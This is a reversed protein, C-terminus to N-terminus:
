AVKQRPLKITFTTGCGPKSDVTLEGDHKQVIIDYSINLGLGTGEGVPKTTFFPDFIMKLHEPKIGPGDDRIRCWVHDAAAGTTIEISGFEQRGQAKIAQAANVIINLIVQNIQGVHCYVEPLQPDFHTAIKANYKYENRAVVLTTEVAKNLCYLTKDERQDVRSFERLKTVISTIREFGDESETFLEDLDELIFDLQLAEELASLAGLEAVPVGDIGVLRDYFRRYEEILHKFKLIYDKMSKFNSSVFGVPTNLEHAIGAALNGISALKEQQVMQAQSQQLKKITEQLKQNTQLLAASRESVLAELDEKQQRLSEEDRIKERIKEARYAAMKLTDAIIGFDLMPKEVFNWAGIRMARVVDAIKDTGSIAVLPLAPWREHFREILEFGSIEPLYLDVLVVDPLTKELLEEAKVANHCEGLQFGLPELFRKLLTTIMPDDDIAMVTISHMTKRKCSHSAM